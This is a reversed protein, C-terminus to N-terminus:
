LPTNRTSVFSIVSALFAALYDISILDSPNASGWGGWKGIQVIVHDSATLQERM